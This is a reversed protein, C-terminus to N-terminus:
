PNVTPEFWELLGNNHIYYYEHSTGGPSTILVIMYGYEANIMPKFTKSTGNTFIIIVMPYEPYNIDYPSYFVTVIKGQPNQYHWNGQDDQWSLINSLALFARIANMIAPNILNSYKLANFFANIDDNPDPLSMLYLFLDNRDIESPNEKIGRSKMFEMGQRAFVETYAFLLLGREDETGDKLLTNVLTQANKVPSPYMSFESSKYGTIYPNEDPKGNHQSVVVEYNHAMELAEESKWEYKGVNDINEAITKYLTGKNYLYIFNMM